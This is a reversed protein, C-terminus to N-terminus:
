SKFTNNSTDLKPTTFTMSVFHDTQPYWVSQIERERERKKRNCIMTWIQFICWIRELDFIIIIQHVRWLTIYERLATSHFDVRKPTMILSWKMQLQFWELNYHFGSWLITTQIVRKLTSEVIKLTSEVIKLTSKWELVFHDRIHM